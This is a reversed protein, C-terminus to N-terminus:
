AYSRIHLMMHAATPPIPLDTDIASGFPHILNLWDPSFLRLAKGCRKYHRRKATPLERHM